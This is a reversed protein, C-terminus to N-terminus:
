RNGTFIYKVGFTSSSPFTMNFCDEKSIPLSLKGGEVTSFTRFSESCNGGHITTRGFSSSIKILKSSKGIEPSILTFAFSISRGSSSMKNSINIGSSYPTFLKPSQFLLTQLRINKTCPLVKQGIHLHVSLQILN